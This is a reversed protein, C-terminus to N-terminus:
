AMGDDSGTAVEDRHDDSEPEFSLDKNSETVGPKGKTEKGCAPIDHCTSTQASNRPSPKRAKLGNNHEKVWSQKVPANWPSKVRRAYTRVIEDDSTFAIGCNKFHTAALGDEFPDSSFIPDHCGKSMKPCSLIYFSTDDNLKYSFVFNTPYYVTISSTLTCTVNKQRSRQFRKNNQKKSILKQRGSKPITRKPPKKTSSAPSSRKTLTNELNELSRNRRRRKNLELHDHSPVQPSPSRSELQYETTNETQESSLGDSSVISPESPQRLEPPATFMPRKSPAYEVGSSFLGIGQELSFNSVNCLFSEEIQAVISGKEDSPFRSPTESVLKDRMRERFTEYQKVLRKMEQNLEAELHTNYHQTLKQIYEAAKRSISSAMPLDADM